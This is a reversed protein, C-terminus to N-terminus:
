SPRFSSYSSALLPRGFFRIVSTFTPLARVKTSESRLNRTLSSASSNFIPIQESSFFSVTDQSASEGRHFRGQGHHTLIQLTFYSHRFDAVKNIFLKKVRSSPRNLDLCTTNKFMKIFHCTNFVSNLTKFMSLGCLSLVMFLSLSVDFNTLILMMGIGHM